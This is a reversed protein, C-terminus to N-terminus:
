TACFVITKENQNIEDMFLKVRHAEREKIEIIKNFDRETYRRGVEIDGEILRDDPTYVYDDLTTSIQKVKFPTLFGDNIAEKLSYIYVPDGFYAYTDVDENRTPTATLGLRRRAQINATVRFVPAPLLHVEDYIILGWDNLAFISLDRQQTMSQLAHTLMQYTAITVPRIEKREGSYEGIEDAHLTTKDLLETAWQRAATIGPALILTNTQEATPVIPVRKPAKPTRVLRATNTQVTGQRMMFKFLSRVAALKRRISIVSLGRDYLSGLWERLQLVGIMAPSPPQAGPPSFYEIFERLDIEVDEHAAVPRHQGALVEQLMSVFDNRNAVEQGLEALAGFTHILKSKTETM